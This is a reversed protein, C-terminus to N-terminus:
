TTDGNPAFGDSGRGTSGISGQVMGVVSASRRTAYGSSLLEGIGLRTEALCM